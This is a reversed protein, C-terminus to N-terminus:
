IFHYLSKDLFFFFILVICLLIIVFECFCCSFRFCFGFCVLCVVVVPVSDCFHPDCPPNDTPLHHPHSPFLVPFLLCLHYTYFLRPSTLFLIPFPSALSSIHVIRPCLNPSHHQSPHHLAFLFLPSFFLPVVM